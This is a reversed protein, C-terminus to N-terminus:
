FHAPGDFKVDEWLFSIFYRDLQETKKVATEMKRFGLAMRRQKEM